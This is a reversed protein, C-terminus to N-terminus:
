RSAAQTAAFNSIWKPREPSQVAIVVRRDAGLGRAVAGRVFALDVAANAATAKPNELLDLLRMRATALLCACADPPPGGYVGIIADTGASIEHRWEIACDTVRSLDVSRAHLWCRDELHQPCPPLLRVQATLKV